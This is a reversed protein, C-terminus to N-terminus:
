IKKPKKALIYGVIIGMAFSAILLVVALLLKKKDELYHKKQTDKTDLANDRDSTAYVVLDGANLVLAADEKEFRIATRDYYNIGEATYVNEYIYGGEYCDGIRSLLLLMINSNPVLYGELINPQDASCGNFKFNAKGIGDQTIKMNFNTSELFNEENDIKKSVVDIEASINNKKLSISHLSPFNQFTDKILQNYESMISDYNNSFGRVFIDDCSKVETTTKTKLDLKNIIPPCGRGGYDNELYFVVNNQSDYVIRSIYSPGGVTALINTTPLFFVVLSSVFILSLTYTIKNM